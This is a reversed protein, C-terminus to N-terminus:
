NQNGSLNLKSNPSFLLRGTAGYNVRLVQGTYDVPLTVTHNLTVRDTALPIRSCSWVAGDNWEGAKVTYMSSCLSSTQFNVSASFNSRETASCIAQIQWEYATDPTLGSLDTYGNGNYSTLNPLMTWTATGVIRYRAEYRTDVTPWPFSWNIRASTTTLASTTLNFPVTCAKTTFQSTAWIDSTMTESCLTRVQWDYATNIQLNSLELSTAILNNTTIWDTAGVLRYRVEYLESGLGASAWVLTASTMQSFAALSTATACRTIFDPGIVFDSNEGPACSTQIQWEYQKRPLLGTLDIYGAGSSSTLNDLFIWNNAGIERYLLRYHTDANAYAFGWYLRASTPNSKVSLGTPSQCSATRFTSLSSYDGYSGNSCSARVQWEYQTNITLGTVLTNPNVLGSVTLWDSSGSQRYRVEYSAGTETASWTLSASTVQVAPFYAPTPILCRPSFTPGATFATSETASCNARVQWEYQFQSNLGTLTYSNVGPLPLNSITTWDPTGVSRYQLDFRIGEDSAQGWNLKVTTSSVDQVTLRDPANCATSFTAVPSYGSYANVACRTRLRAEYTTQPSLGALLRSNYSSFNNIGSVVSWTTTGVPRYELEYFSGPEPVGAFGWTMDAATASGRATLGLPTLGCFTTFTNPTTFDTMETLSCVSRVQFEYTTNNSLGTLSYSSTTLSSVSSWVPTGVPRYRLEFTQSPDSFSIYWSVLASTSRVSFISTSHPVQCSYTTFTLPSTFTSQDTASCVGQLRLEYPTSASLSTLSYPGITLGTIAAWDVSGVTRWQLTVTQADTERNWNVSASTRAPATNAFQPVPCLPKFTVSETYTNSDTAKVQWEYTTYEFLTSLRINTEGVNPILEWATGGVARWQVDYTINEGLSTWNLQASTETIQTTTLGTVIGSSSPTRISVTPSLSGTTTNSPRIRYYYQVGLQTTYDSYSIEDPGAGGIAVFGSTPSTSREIFYGMENSSNDQWTVTVVGNTLQAVVLSPAVMETPPATLSYSTHSQRLALGEQMRDFQGSTFSYTLPFYYSMLNTIQPAYPEGNPDRATSNPDYGIDVGRSRIVSAGPILYPDAPTDCILDGQTTCNAGTGRTVLEATTGSGLTGSGPRQGFTHILSFNHGLEHPMTRHGEAYVFSRTSRLDDNPYYAYGGLNTNAFRNVYYQNMANPADHGDVSTGEAYPFYSFLQDDDIFDPTTGAFYFQIGAGNLLFYRNTKALADNINSLSTGLTGSSNRIIHPRIPVYTIATFAVGSARKRELALKGQNILSLAQAPTLDLTGCLTSDSPQSTQAVLSIASFSCFLWGILLIRLYLYNM